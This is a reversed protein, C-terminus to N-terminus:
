GGDLTYTVVLYPDAAALVPSKADYALEFVGRAGDDVDSQALIIGPSDGEWVLAASQPTVQGTFLYPFQQDTLQFVLKAHSDKFQQWAYAYDTRVSLIQVLGPQPLGDHTLANLRDTLSQRAKTALLEGGDRATYRIHLVLDTITSYDFARFRNPLSFRWCSLVGAGEFPLYRADGFSLEFLGSDNQGSSTTIQQIPVRSTTYNEPADYEDTVVSKTRVSSSLLTLTGNVGTYPGVVCPVSVSVTKLRRFFHGAFDIDLLAEPIEFECEGDNRLRLLAAGDLQRLSVHKVIELERRNENLYSVEMRKIDYHLQEGAGLGRRISDWYGFKIFDSSDLGLEHRYAQEARKAVDYALQYSRFYVDSTQQVMWAYLEQNTFKDRMFADAEQANSIALDHNSLEQNTISVRIAAAAIQKVLQDIDRGATKAQHVWDAARRQYSALISALNARYSHEASAGDSQLAFLEAAKSLLTGGLQATVVPSGTTGSSGFTFDPIMAFFRAAAKQDWGKAQEDRAAKLESLHRKEADNMPVKATTGDSEPMNANLTQTARSLAQKLLETSANAIPDIQGTIAQSVDLTMSITEVAAAAISAVTPGAPGGPIAVEELQSVLGVYYALRAQANELAPGLSELSARAEQVQLQKVLRVSSLVSLEHGNRLRALAEVDRKEMASLLASGLERVGTALESAKQSMTSFRYLPLPANADALIASIDVGAARARVLMGPDIPPDFLALQRVVGDINMCNRIKTLRDDVTAYYERLKPNDPVCFYLTPPLPASNSTTAGGAGAINEAIVLPDGLAGAEGTLKPRLEAFAMPRPRTRHMIPEPKRGLIQAALVYIQTAEDIAEMSDRRFLQDGWAILNDLYKMVVSFMYARPRLRAVLHPEFPNDRWQAITRLFAQKQPSTDSSDALRRVLEAIPPGTGLDRFPRFRWYREPTPDSSTDTPNFVYHFWTRAQAFQHNRTLATGIAVAVHYFLEWNYPGVPATPSFVVDDDPQTVVIAGPHYITAFAGRIGDPPDPETQTAFALLGDIGEHHLVKRFRAIQPHDVATFHLQPDHQIVLRPTGRPDFVWHASLQNTPYVFFQRQNDIYFFPLPRLMPATAVVASPARFQLVPEDAPLLLSYDRPTQTLATVSTAGNPLTFPRSTPYLTMGQHISISTAYDVAIPDNRTRVDQYSIIGNQGRVFGAAVRLEDGDFNLTVVPKKDFAVGTMGGYAYADIGSLYVSIAVGLDQPSPRIYLDRASWGTTMLSAGDLVDTGFLKRQTWAGHRYESWAVKMTLFKSPQQNTESSGAAARPTAQEGFIPWFLFMRGQWIFPVLHDGEVEVPLPEWPTWDGTHDLYATPVRKVFKRYHYVYPEHRTRGFVHVITLKDGDYENCMGTAEIRAIDAMGDVYTRMAADAADATLDGQSLGSTLAQFPATQDPRLDPEIWNEPYLLIKRNAEWVRYNRMWAWRAQEIADTRVDPELAMVIRHIFVQVTSIAQRVRTTMACPGMQPDVLLLGYLDNADRLGREQVWYEVLADRRQTRLEDFVPRSAKEWGFEGITARALQRARTAGEETPVARWADLAAADAGIRRMLSTCSALCSLRTPDLLDAIAASGVSSAVRRLDDAPIGFLSALAAYKAADSDPGSVIRRIPELDSRDLDSADAAGLLTAFSLWTPWMPSAGVIRERPVSTFDLSGAAADWGAFLWRIQDADLACRAAVLALMALRDIAHAQAPFSSSDIGVAPDSRAFAPTVLWGEDVDRSVLAYTAAAETHRFEEVLVAAQGLELDFADAVLQNAISTAREKRAVPVLRVLLELCREALTPLEGLLREAGPEGAAAPTSQRSVFRNPAAETYSKATTFLQDITSRYASGAPTGGFEAIADHWEQTMPGLFQYTSTGPDFWFTGKWEPPIVIDELAPIAGTPYSAHHTPLQLSKALDVLPGVAKAVDQEAQAAGTQVKAVAADLLAKDAAPLDTYQQKARLTDAAATLSTAASRPPSTWTLTSASFSMGPPLVAAVTPALSELPTQFTSPYARALIDGSLLLDVLRDPWGIELLLRRALDVANDPTEHLTAEAAQMKERFSTLFGTVAHAANATDAQTPYRHRLLLDLQPITLGASKSLRAAGLFQLAHQPDALPAIGSMQVLAAYDRTPMKAARALRIHGCLTTLSGLSLSEEVLGTGSVIRAAAWITGIGATRQLRIRLRSSHGTYPIMTRRWDNSGRQVDVPTGVDAPSGSADLEQLVIRLRTTTDSPYGVVWEAHIDDAGTVDVWVGYVDDAAGAGLNTPPITATAPALVAAIDTPRCSLAASLESAYDALRLRPFEAASPTLTVLEDRTATLDLGVARPRSVVPDQLLRDFYSGIPVPQTESYNWYPVTDLTSRFLNVIADIPLRTLERLRLVNAIYVLFSETFHEITSNKQPEPVSVPDTSHGHARIAADLDRFAWGLKRALRLFLYVRRLTSPTLEGSHPWNSIMMLDSNCEDGTLIIPHTSGPATQIFQSDLLQLMEPHTIRARHRFKSVVQLDMSWPHPLGDADPVKEAPQGWDIWAGTTPNMLRQREAESLGLVACGADLRSWRASGAYAELIARRSTKLRDLWADTEVQDIDFPFAWPYRAYLLPEYAWHVYERPVASDASVGNQSQPYIRIRLYAPSHSRLHLRWANGTVRWNKDPSSPLPTVAPTDGIDIGAHALDDKLQQPLQGADLVPDFGWDDIHGAADRTGRAFVNWFAHEALASELLELVLDVYQMEAEANDRNLELEALDPRRELLVDLASVGADNKPGGDLMQLLEVFYAVPSYMSVCSSGPCFDQNGFLAEITVTQGASRLAAEVTGPDFEGTEADAVPDMPLVPLRPARNFAPAHALMLGTATATAASARDYIEAAASAGGPLASSLEDVFRGRHILSIQRASGYGAALLHQASEFTDSVHIVREVRLLASQVDPLRDADIGEFDHEDPTALRGLVPHEGIRFTEANNLFRVVDSSVDAGLPIRGDSIRAAVYASPLQQEVNRLVQNVYRDPRDAPIHLHAPVGHEAVLRDWRARDFGAVDRLSTTAGNVGSQNLAQVLAAHASTIEGFALTRAVPEFKAKDWMSVAATDGDLM